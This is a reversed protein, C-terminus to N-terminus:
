GNRLASTLFRDSRVTANEICLNTIATIKTKNAGPPKLASLSLLLSNLEELASM